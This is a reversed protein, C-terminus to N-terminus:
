LLNIILWRQCYVKKSDYHTCKEIYWASIDYPKNLATGAVGVQLTYTSDEMDIVRVEKTSDENEFANQLGFIEKKSGIYKM